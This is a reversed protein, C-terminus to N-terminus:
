MGYNTENSASQNHRTREAAGGGNRRKDFVTSCDGNSEDTEGKKEEVMSM